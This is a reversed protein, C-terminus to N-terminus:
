GQACGGLYIHFDARHNRYNDPWGGWARDVHPNVLFPFGPTTEININSPMPCSRRMGPVHPNGSVPSPMTFRAFFPNATVPSAPLGLGFNVLALGLEGEDAGERQYPLNVPTIKVKCIRATKTIKM